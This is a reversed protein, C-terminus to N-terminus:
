KKDGLVAKATTAFCALSNHGAEMLAAAMADRDEQTCTKGIEEVVALFTSALGVLFVHGIRALDAKDQATLKTM